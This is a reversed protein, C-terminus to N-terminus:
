IDRCNEVAYDYLIPWSYCSGEEEKEFGENLVIFDKEM